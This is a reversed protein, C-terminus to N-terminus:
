SVRPSTLKRSPDHSPTPLPPSLNRPMHSVQAPAKDCDISASCGSWGATFLKSINYQLPLETHTSDSVDLAGQWSIGKCARATCDAVAQRLTTQREWLYSTCRQGALAQESRGQFHAGWDIPMQTVKGDLQTWQTNACQPKDWPTNQAPTKGFRVRDPLIVPIMNIGLQIGEAWEMYNRIWSCSGASNQLGKVARLNWPIKTQDSRYCKTLISKPEIYQCHDIRNMEYVPNGNADKKQVGYVNAVPTDFYDVDTCDYYGQWRWHVIYHGVGKRAPISVRIADYDVPLHELHTYRAASMIWPYLSSNYAM